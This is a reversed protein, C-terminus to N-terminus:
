KVFNTAIWARLRGYIEVAQGCEEESFPMREYRLHMTWAARTSLVSQWLVIGRRDAQFHKNLSQKRSGPPQIKCRGLEQLDHSFPYKSIQNVGSMSVSYSDTGHRELAAKLVIELAIFSQEMAGPWLEAERLAQANDSYESSRLLLEDAHSVSIKYGLSGAIDSAVILRPQM